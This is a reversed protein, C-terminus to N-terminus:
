VLIFTSWVRLRLTVLHYHFQAVYISAAATFFYFTSLLLMDHKEWHLDLLAFSFAGSLWVDNTRSLYYFGFVMFIFDVTQGISGSVCTREGTNNLSFCTKSRQLPSTVWIEWWKYLHKYLWRRHILTTSGMPRDLLWLDTGIKNGIKIVIRLM